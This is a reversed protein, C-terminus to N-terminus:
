LIAAGGCILSLFLCDPILPQLLQVSCCLTGLGLAPMVPVSARCMALHPKHIKIDSNAACIRAALDLQSGLLRCALPQHLSSIVRCPCSLYPLALGRMAILQLAMKYESSNPLQGRTYLFLDRRIYNWYPQETAGGVKTTNFNFVKTYLLKFHM